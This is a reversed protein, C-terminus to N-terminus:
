CAEGAALARLAAMGPTFFYGGGRNIVFARQPALFEPPDGQITMKGLPDDLALLFDQETGLCFADGDMLWRGQILEFQRAISAQYCVFMLGRDLGDDLYPDEARPGYPMGRRIIRHRATLRGHFGLADRPNARRVHAGLPCRSGDPDAGYRFDTLPPAAATAEDPQEASAVIPTGDRWRGVVKASLQEARARDGGAAVLLYNYFRSVHQQLKRVVMYSGSRRLPDHPRDAVQGAEDRYGLVFEGPALDRWGGRTPVGQGARRHPGVREGAHESVGAISPQALGDAFGFHEYVRNEGPGPLVAARQEHVIALGSATGGARRRVDDRLGALGEPDRATLTLLVHPDGGRLGAEWREPANPGIDGLRDARAAMGERFDAPFSELVDRSVGLARLGDFSFAVNTATAPKGPGFPAATTVRGEALLEAVLERGAAPDRVRLFAFLGHPFGYGALVNGQLDHQDVKQPRRSPRRPREM